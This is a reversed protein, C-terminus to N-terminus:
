ISIETLCIRYNVFYVIWFEQRHIAQTLYVFLLRNCFSRSTKKGRIVIDSYIVIYKKTCFIHMSLKYRTEYNCTYNNYDNDDYSFTEADNPLFYDLSCM